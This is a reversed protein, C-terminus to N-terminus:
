QKLTLLCEHSILRLNKIPVYILKGEYNGDVSGDEIELFNQPLMKGIIQM